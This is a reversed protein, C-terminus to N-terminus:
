IEQRLTQIALGTKFILLIVTKLRGLNEWTVRRRQSRWHSGTVAANSELCNLAMM